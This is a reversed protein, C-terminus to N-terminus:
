RVSMNSLWVSCGIRYVPFTHLHALHSARHQTLFIISQKHSSAILNDPNLHLLWAITATLNVSHIVLVLARQRHGSTAAIIPDQFIVREFTTPLLSQRIRKFSPSRFM